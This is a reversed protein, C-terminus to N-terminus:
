QRAEGDAGGSESSAPEVPRLAEACMGVIHYDVKWENGKATGASDVRYEQMYWGGYEPDIFRSRCLRLTADIPGRLEQRGHVAAFRMMARLAECQQWWGKVTGLPEHNYRVASWVGGVIPDYGMRIGADLLRSGLSICRRDLGAAAGASHLYAWEFHHGVDLRGGAEEPQPEWEADYMEPLTQAGPWMRREVFRRCSEAAALAGVGGAEHMALLAEFLHMMPNQSRGGSEPYWDRSARSVLGGRSDTLRLQLTDFVGEAATLYDREGTAMAAHALGFLCFAHGYADKRDDIADGDADVSWYCGGHRRDLFRALLFDASRRTEELCRADGLLRYGTAFNFVLRAQSVITARSPSVQRWERSLNPHLFGTGTVAAQLWRDLLEALHQRFWAPDQGALEAITRPM